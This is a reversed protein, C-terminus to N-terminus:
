GGPQGLDRRLPVKAHRTPPFGPEEAPPIGGAIGFVEAAPEAAAHEVTPSSGAVPFDGSGAAQFLRAVTAGVNTDAPGPSM